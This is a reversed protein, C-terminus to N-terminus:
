RIGSEKLVYFFLLILVENIHELTGVHNQKKEANGIEKKAMSGNTTQTESLIPEESNWYAMM